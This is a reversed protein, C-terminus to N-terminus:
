SRIGSAESGWSTIKNIGLKMRDESQWQETQGLHTHGHNGRGAEAPRRAQNVARWGGPQWKAMEQM